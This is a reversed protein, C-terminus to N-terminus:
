GRKGPAPAPAPAPAQPMAYGRLAEHALRAHMGQPYAKLYTWMAAPTDQAEAEAWALMEPTPPPPTLAALRDRAEGAHAGQPHDRLYAEMSQVTDAARAAEWAAIEPDVSVSPPTGPKVTRAVPPEPTAPAAAGTVTITALIDALTTPCPVSREPMSVRVPAMMGEWGDAQDFREQTTLVGILLPGRDGPACLHSVVVRAPSVQGDPMPGHSPSRDSGGDFIWVPVGDVTSQTIATIRPLRRNIADALAPRIDPLGEVAYLTHSRDPDSEDAIDLLMLAGRDELNAVRQGPLLAIRVTDALLSEVRVGDYMPADALALGAMTQQEYAIADAETLGFTNIAIWPNLGTATPRSNILYTLRREATIGEDTEMERGRFVSLVTDGLQVTEDTLAVDAGGLRSLTAAFEPSNTPDTSVEARQAQTFVRLVTDAGISTDEDTNTLWYERQRATDRDRRVRMGEPALLQIGFREYPVWNAAAAVEPAPEPRDIDGLPLAMIAAGIADACPAADDPLTLAVTSLIAALVDPAARMRTTVVGFLAPGGDPLCSQTVMIQAHSGDDQPRSGDPRRSSLGSIVWVPTEQHMGETVAEISNFRDTIATTIAEIDAGPHAVVVATHAMDPFEPHALTAWTQVDDGSLDSVQIDAPLTLGLRGELVTFVAPADAVEAVADGQAQDPQAETAAADSELPLVDPAAEVEVEVEADPPTEQAFGPVPVFGALSLAFLAIPGSKSLPKFKTSFAPM